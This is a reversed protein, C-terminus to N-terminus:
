EFGSPASEWGDPLVPVPLDPCWDRWHTWWARGREILEVVSKGILRIAAAEEDTHAGFRVRMDLAEQDKWQWSSLDPAVIIDLELDRMDFGVISRRFPDIVDVYWALFEGNGDNWFASVAYPEGCRAICLRRTTHFVRESLEWEGSVIMALADEYRDWKAAMGVAGARTFFAIEDGSDHVVIAPSAWWLKGGWYERVAINDGASFPPLGNM